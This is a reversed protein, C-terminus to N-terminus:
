GRRRRLLGMAGLGSAFLMWTSPEPTATAAAGLDGPDNMLEGAWVTSGNTVWQAIWQGNIWTWVWSGGPEHPLNPFPPPLLPANVFEELPIPPPPPGETIPSAPLPLPGLALIM